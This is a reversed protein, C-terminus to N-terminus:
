GDTGLAHVRTEGNLSGGWCASGVGIWRQVSSEVHMCEYVYISPCVPLYKKNVHSCVYLYMYLGDIIAIGSMVHSGAVDQPSSGVEEGLITETGM